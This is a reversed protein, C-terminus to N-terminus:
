NAYRRPDAPALAEFTTSWGVPRALAVPENHRSAGCPYSVRVLFMALRYQPPGRQTPLESLGPARQPRARCVHAAPKPDGDRALRMWEERMVSCRGANFADYIAAYTVARGIM